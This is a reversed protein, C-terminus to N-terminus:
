SSTTARAASRSRIPRSRAHSSRWTWRARRRSRTTRRISRALRPTANSSRSSPSGLAVFSGPTRLGLKDGLHHRLPGMVGNVTTEDGAGFLLLDGVRGACAERLAEREGDTFFKAISGDLGADTVRLWALGKGGHEQAFTGLADIDKRSWAGAGSANIGRVIGGKEAAEKFVRFGCNRAFATLDVLGMAFRLDPKDIGFRRMTERYPIRPFPPKLDVGFAAQFGAAISGEVAGWVDAPEVFSM